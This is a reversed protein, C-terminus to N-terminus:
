MHLLIKQIRGSDNFNHCICIKTEFINKNIDMDSVLMYCTM